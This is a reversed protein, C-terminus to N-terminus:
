PAGVLSAGERFLEPYGNRAAAADLPKGKGLNLQLRILQLAGKGCAVFIGSKDSRVITGPHATTSLHTPKAGLIRLRVEGLVVTAPLRGCLARVQRALDPAASHWNITADAPSLKHAYTAGSETQPVPTRSEIDALCDVLLDAGTKALTLELAPGDIEDDIPVVSRAFVPGTDLGEDMQIICVGTEADGAMIAREVPAAGRWRPLLSAHVNICGLRPTALIAPPLILGYAAVILVDLQQQALEAAAQESRLTTPQRVAIGHAACTAKVPSPKTRRGRGARRDPQTYAVALTHPSAILAELIHAAFSPTGAFGLRLLNM